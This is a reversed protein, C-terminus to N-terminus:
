AKPDLVRGMFLVRGTRNEKILFLFPHDAHFERVMPISKTMIAASAAAAETGEENVEVFAKHVVAGIFLERSGTMGSFDAGAGFADPMGMSVLTRSLDFESSVTFRPLRVHVQGPHREELDDLWRGLASPSISQEAASLDGKAVPLIILMSLGGGTYPLELIRLGAAELYRFDGTQDMMDVTSAKKPSLSFRGPRTNKRSFPAAWLGKFYIANILVLRTDPTIVGQKILDRIIGGTKEEVWGNITGRATETQGSFDALRLESSHYQKLDSLFRQSFVYGTQGWLANAFSLGIDPQGSLSAIGTSNESLFSHFQRRDLPFHLVAAMQTRTSSKAGEYAMALVSSISSPSFSLNGDRGMLTTYLNAAFSQTGKMRGPPDASSEGAQGVAACGTFLFVMIFVKVLVKICSGASYM